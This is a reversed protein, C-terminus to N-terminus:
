AVGDPSDSQGAVSGDQILHFLGLASAAHDIDARSQASLRLRPENIMYLLHELAVGAEGHDLFNEVIAMGDRLGAQDLASGATPMGAAYLRDLDTQAESAARRIAPVPDM